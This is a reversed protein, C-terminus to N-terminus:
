STVLHFLKPIFIIFGVILATLTSVFVAAASLDKIKKIAQHKEPSIFDCLNEISSNIIEFSFVLGISLIIALWESKEIEFLISVGIVIIATTLHIRSNHEERFLIKLGNFSYKFSKLREGFSFKSDKNKM